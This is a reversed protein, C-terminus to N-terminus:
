LKGEVARQRFLLEMYEARLKEEDLKLEKAIRAMGWGKANRLRVAEDIIEMPYTENLDYQM